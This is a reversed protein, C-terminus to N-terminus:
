SEPFLEAASTATLSRDFWETLTDLDTCATIREHDDPTLPVGRKHLVRLISEVTGEAKGELYTQEFLTGRGPFYTAVM